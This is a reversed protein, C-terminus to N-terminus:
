KENQRGQLLNTEARPCVCEHPFINDANITVIENAPAARDAGPFHSRWAEVADGTRHRQVAECLLLEVFV